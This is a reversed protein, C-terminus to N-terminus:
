ASTYVDSFNLTVPLITILFSKKIIYKTHKCSFKLGFRKKKNTKKTKQNENEHSFM